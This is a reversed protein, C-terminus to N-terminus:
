ICPLNVTVNGGNSTFSVPFTPGDWPNRFQPGITVSVSQGAPLTGSSPTLTYGSPVSGSWTLSQGGTNKLIIPNSWNANSCHESPSTATLHPPAPASTATPAPPPVPTNTPQPPPTPGGSPNGPTATAAPGGVPTPTANPNPTPTTGGTPNGTPQNLGGQMILNGDGALFIEFATTFHVGDVQEASGPFVFNGQFEVYWLMTDDPQFTSNHILQGVQVAPLEVVKSPMPHKDGMNEPINHTSVYNRVDQESIGGQGGTANTIAPIGVVFQAIPTTSTPFPPPSPVPSPAAQSLSPQAFAIIFAVALAVLFIVPMGSSAFRKM